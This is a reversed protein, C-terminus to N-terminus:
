LLRGGATRAPRARPGDTSQTPVRAVHTEVALVDEWDQDVSRTPRGSQLLPSAFQGTSQGSSDELDSKARAEIHLV